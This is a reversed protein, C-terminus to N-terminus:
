VSSIRCIKSSKNSLNDGRIEGDKSYFYSCLSAEFWSDFEFSFDPAPIGLTPQHSYWSFGYFLVVFVTNCICYFIIYTHDKVFVKVWEQPPWQQPNSDRSATSTEEAAEATRGRCCFNSKRIFYKKIFQVSYQGREGRMASFKWVQGFWM